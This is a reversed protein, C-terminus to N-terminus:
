SVSHLRSFGSLPKLSSLPAKHDFCPRSKVKQQSACTLVGSHQTTYANYTVKASTEDRVILRGARKLAHASLMPKLVSFKFMSHLVEKQKMRQVILLHKNLIWLAHNIKYM